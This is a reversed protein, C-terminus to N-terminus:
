VFLCLKESNALSRSEVQMFLAAVSALQILLPISFIDDSVVMYDCAVIKDM